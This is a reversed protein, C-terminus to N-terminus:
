CSWSPAASTTARGPRARPAHLRRDGAHPRRRAPPRVARARGAGRRARRAGGDGDAALTPVFGWLRLTEDLIRRHTDNDDVVLVRQGAPVDGSGAPRAEVSDAPAVARGAAITFTFVSGHGERSTLAITGGMLSVLRGSIALGLGTGGFSRAVGADAQEFANFVRAQKSEAIGIGTDRVAFALVVGTATAADALSVDIAIEGSPTFKMANGVMNVLIQRIREADAVVQEPVDPAVRYTLELGKRHAPLAFM